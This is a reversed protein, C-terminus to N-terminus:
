RRFFSGVFSVFGKFLLGAVMIAIGIAPGRFSDFELEPSRAVAIRDIETDASVTIEVTQPETIDFSWLSVSETGADSVSLNSDALDLENGDADVVTVEPITFNGQCIDDGCDDVTVDGEAYLIWEGAASLEISETQGPEIDGVADASGRVLRMMSGWPMTILAVAVGILVVLTGLWKLPRLALCGPQSRRHPAGGPAGGTNWGSNWGTNVSVM